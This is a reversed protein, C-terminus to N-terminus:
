SLDAIPKWHSELVTTSSESRAFGKDVIREAFGKDVLRLVMTPSESKTKKKKIGRSSLVYHTYQLMRLQTFPSWVFRPYRSSPPSAGGEYRGDYCCQCRALGHHGDLPSSLMKQEKIIVHPKRQFSVCLGSVQPANDADFHVRSVSVLPSLSACVCVCLIRASM